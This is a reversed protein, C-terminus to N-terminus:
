NLKQLRLRLLLRRPQRQLLMHENANEGNAVTEVVDVAVAACAAAVAGAARSDLAAVAGGAGDLTMQLAIWHMKAIEVAIAVEGMENLAM